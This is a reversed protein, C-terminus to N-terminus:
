QRTKNLNTTPTVKKLYINEGENIMLIKEMVISHSRRLSKEKRRSSLNDTNSTTSKRNVFHEGKTTELATKVITTVTLKKAARKNKSSKLNTSKTTIVLSPVTATTTTITTNNYRFEIKKFLRIALSRCKARAFIISYVALNINNYIIKRCQRNNYKRNRCIKNKYKVNKYPSIGREHKICRDTIADIKAMTLKEKRKSGKVLKKKNKTRSSNTHTNLKNTRESKPKELLKTNATENDTTNLGNKTM